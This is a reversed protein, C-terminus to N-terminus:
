TKPERVVVGTWYWERRYGLFLVSGVSALVALLVFIVTTTPWALFAAAISVGLAGQLVTPSDTMM